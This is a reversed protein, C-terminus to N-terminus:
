HIIDTYLSLYRTACVGISYNELFANRNEAAISERKGRELNMYSRLAKIYDPKSFDEAVFGNVGDRIMSRLGGAPTAIVPLGYSMAELVSIPMGENLSTLVFADCCAMYDAVNDKAGLLIVTSGKLSNLHNQYAKDHSSDKGIILCIVGSAKLEHMAEILLAQNKNADLRGVSLLVQTHAVPKLHEIERRVEDAKATTAFPAIGNEVLEFQFFPFETQFENRINAAICVLKIKRVLRKVSRLQRFIKRKEANVDSHLTHIFRIKSFVLVFPLIYKLTADLHFHIVDPKEAKILRYLKRYIGPDPGKKKGLTILPIRAHLLKPFPMTDAVTKFSCLTVSHNESLENSLEVVFKEAGGTGLGSIVQLIKM